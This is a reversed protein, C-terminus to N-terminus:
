SALFQNLTETTTSSLQALQHTPNLIYSWSSIVHATSLAWGVLLMSIEVCVCHGATGLSCQLLWASKVLSSHCEILLLHLLGRLVVVAVRSMCSVDELPTHSSCVQLLWAVQEFKCRSCAENTILGWAMDTDQWTGGHRSTLTMGHAKHHRSALTVQLEEQSLDSWMDTFSSGHRLEAVPSDDPEDEAAGCGMRSLMLRPQVGSHM